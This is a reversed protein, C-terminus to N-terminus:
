ENRSVEQILKGCFCCYKMKNEKPTGEALIFLQECATSWNGEEDDHWICYMEQKIPKYQFCYVVDHGAPGGRIIDDEFNCIPKKYVCTECRSQFAM